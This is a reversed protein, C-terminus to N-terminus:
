AAGRHHLVVRRVAAQFFFDRPEVGALNQQGVRLGLTEGPTITLTLDNLVPRGRYGARIGYAALSM